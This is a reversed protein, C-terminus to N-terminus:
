GEADLEFRRFRRRCREIITHPTRRTTKAFVDGIVIADPELRYIVRWTKDGDRVRLEHVRPAISPMPRSDPMGITEGRQLRRLHVGVEIRARPSFPPTRVENGLWVLPKDGDFPTSIM